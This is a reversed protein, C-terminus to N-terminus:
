RVKKFNEYKGYYIWYPDDIFIGKTLYNMPKEVKKDKTAQKMNDLAFLLVEIWDRNYYLCFDTRKNENDKFLIQIDKGTVKRKPYLKEFQVRFKGIDDDSGDVRLDPESQTQLNATFTELAEINPSLPYLVVSGAPQTTVTENKLITEKLKTENRKTQEITNLVQEASTLCTNTTQQRKTGSIIGAQRRKEIIEDRYTMRNKLSRSFFYDNEQKFLNIPDASCRDIFQKLKNPEINLSYAIGNIRDLSLQYEEAQALMEVLMWFIGYGEAGFEARMETIKEDNRADLDHSFFHSNVM